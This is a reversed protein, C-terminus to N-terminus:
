EAPMEREFYITKNENITKDRRTCVEQFKGNFNEQYNSPITLVVQKAKEFTASAAKYHGVVKGMGSAKDSAQKYEEQAVVFYAMGQFYISHYQMVNAFKAGDFTKLGQNTQSLEYGKKFYESVQMAIKALVGPKM